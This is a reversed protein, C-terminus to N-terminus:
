MSKKRITAGSKETADLFLVMEDPKPYESHMFAQAEKLQISNAPLGLERAVKEQVKAVFNLEFETLTVGKGDKIVVLAANASVVSATFLCFRLM